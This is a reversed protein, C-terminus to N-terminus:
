PPSHGVKLNPMNDRIISLATAMKTEPLSNIRNSIDQKQEYTVYPIKEKKVPKSPGKKESKAAAMSAGKKTEKKAPKSAKGAKKSSAPPSSKKKQIMEVQKSMAAIQKQLITLQNDESEEEEEEEIDDEEPEPSTGPSQPGSAPTHDELWQKKATWKHEFVGEFQKGLGYVPDSPPNFKYCNSFILRIDAEFEKANEYQGQKLKSDVTGLDMPKKILHYYHPINLAVPDVPNYFPWAVNHHKPKNLENMVEQCFKLEWQYKKKKPKQNAYPLDRPPPRHIERKPRGDGVTSDRRILPVGEPGLAFTQPSGAAIPSRAAGGLSSRSERRSPGAKVTPASAGKKAKKEAPPVDAVDPSPLNGLQKEFADKVNLVQKTVGHDQGNFLICNEVIQNFDAVYTDVSRYEDRRLREELTRLDMPKTVVEPYTPLTLAVYDVPQNFQAAHKMRRLSQIGKLLFRHRPRTMPQSSEQTAADQTAIIDNPVSQPLEPVKFDQGLSAEEETRSRKAAPGEDLDEERGRAVKGPSQPADPMVQDDMAPQLDQPASSSTTDPPEESKPELLPTTPRHPLNTSSTSLGTEAVASTNIANDVSPSTSEIAIDNSPPESNAVVGNMQEPDKDSDLHQTPGDLRAEQSLDGPSTLDRSESVLSQAVTSPQEVKEVESSAPTLIEQSSTFTNSSAVANLDDQSSGPLQGNMGSGNTSSEKLENPLATSPESVIPARSTETASADSTTLSNKLFNDSNVNRHLTM